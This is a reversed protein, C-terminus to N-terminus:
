RTMSVAIEAFLPVNSCKRLFIASGLKIGQRNVITVQDGSNFPEIVEELEGSDQIQNNTSHRHVTPHRKGTEKDRVYKRRNQLTAM